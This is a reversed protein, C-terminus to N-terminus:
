YNVTAWSVFGKELTFLAHVFLSHRWHKSRCKFLQKCRMRRWDIGFTGRPIIQWWLIYLHKRLQTLAAFTIISFHM